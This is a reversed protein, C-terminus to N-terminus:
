AAASPRWQPPRLAGASLRDVLVELARPGVPRTCRLWAGGADEMCGVLSPPPWTALTDTCTGGATGVPRGHVLCSLCGRHCASCWSSPRTSAGPIAWRSATHKGPCGANMSMAQWVAYPPSGTAQGTRHQRRWMKLVRPQLTLGWPQQPGTCACWAQTPARCVGRLHKGLGAQPPTRRCVGGSGTCAQSKTRSDTGSSVSWIAAAQRLEASPRKLVCATRSMSLRSVEVSAPKWPSGLSSGPCATHPTSAPQCLSAGSPLAKDGPAPGTCAAPGAQKLPPAECRPGARGTHAPGSSRDWCCRLTSVKRSCWACSAPGWCVPDLCAASDAPRPRSPLSRHQGSPASKLLASTQPGQRILHPVTCGRPALWPCLEVEPHWGLASRSTMGRGAAQTRGDAGWGSAASAVAAGEVGQCGAELLVAGAPAAQLGAGLLPCCCISGGAQQQCVGTHQGQEARPRQRLRVQGHDAQLRAPPAAEHLGQQWACVLLM